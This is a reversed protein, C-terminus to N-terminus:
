GSSGEIRGTEVPAAPAADPEQEGEAEAVQRAKDVMDLVLNGFPFVESNPRVFSFMRNYGYMNFKITGGVLGTHMVVSAVRDYELTDARFSVLGKDVWLVRDKTAVLLGWGGPVIASVVKLLEENPRLVDGLRKIEGGVVLRTLRDIPAVCREIVVDQETRMDKGRQQKCYQM